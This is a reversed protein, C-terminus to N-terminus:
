LMVLPMAAIQPLKVAHQASQPSQQLLLQSPHTSQQVPIQLEYTQNAPTPSKSRPLFSPNPLCALTSSKACPLLPHGPLCAITHFKSAPFRSSPPRFAGHRRGHPPARYRCLYARLSVVPQRPRNAKKSETAAQRKEVVGDNLMGRM